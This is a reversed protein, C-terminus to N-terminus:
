IRFCQYQHTDFFLRLSSLTIILNDNLQRFSLSSNLIPLSKNGYLGWKDIGLGYLGSCKYLPLIPNEKIFSLGSKYAFLSLLLSLSFLLSLSHLSPTLPM